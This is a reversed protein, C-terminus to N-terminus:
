GLINFIDDINSVVSYLKNDDASMTKEEIMFNLMNIMSDYYGDINFIIIPMSIKGLKNLTLAEFFEDLTGIGGPAIIIADSMKLFLDKRENMTKTHIRKDCNEYLEEFDSMWEPAIALIYGNNDYVGRAVAGMMGDNGGGFVLSHGHTVIKEGLKYGAIIYKEDIFKSGAGYLCIKM